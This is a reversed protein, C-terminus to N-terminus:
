RAGDADAGCEGCDTCVGGGEHRTVYPLTFDRNCTGCREPQQPAAANLARIEEAYEVTDLHAQTYVGATPMAKFGKLWGVYFSSSQLSVQAEAIADRFERLQEVEAVLARIDSRNLPETEYSACLRDRGPRNVTDRTLWAKVRELHDESMAEAM